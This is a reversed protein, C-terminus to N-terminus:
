SLQRIPPCVHFKRVAAASRVVLHNLYVNHWEWLVGSDVPDRHSLLDELKGLPKYVVQCEAFFGPLNCELVCPSFIVEKVGALTSPGRGRAAPSRRAGMAPFIM